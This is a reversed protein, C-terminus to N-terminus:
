LPKRCSEKKYNLSLLDQFSCFTTTSAKVDSEGPLKPLLIVNQERWDLEFKKKSPYHRRLSEALCPGITIMKIKITYVNTNANYQGSLIHICGFPLVMVGFM